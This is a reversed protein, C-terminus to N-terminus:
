ASWSLSDTVKRWPDVNDGGVPAAVTVVVETGTKFFEYREVAAATVKGTVPNPPTDAHYTILVARGAPRDVTSVAGAVYGAAAAAIAPVEASRASAVTPAPTASRTEIRISNYKDTFLVGASTDTRAWGEPVSVSFGGKASSYKVFAQNDPIDGAPNVERGSGSGSVAPSSMGSATSSAAGTSSQGTSGAANSGPVATTSGAPVATNAGSCAGLVILAAMVAATSFTRQPATTM